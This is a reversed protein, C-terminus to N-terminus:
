LVCDWGGFGHILYNNIEYIDISSSLPSIRNPIRMKKNLFAGVDRHKLLSLILHYNPLFTVRVRVLDKGLFLVVRKNIKM